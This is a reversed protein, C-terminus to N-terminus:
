QSLGCEGPPLHPGPVEARLETVRNHADVFVLKPKYTSLESEHLQMFAAIIVLDGPTVLHAAAGNVCIDTCHPKGEIAYTEFRTGSTVNWVNVAEYPLIGSLKLLEPPITVSGEYAVNAQTVTARHIKGRLMRRYSNM